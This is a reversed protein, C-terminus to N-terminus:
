FLCASAVAETVSMALPGTKKSLGSLIGGL